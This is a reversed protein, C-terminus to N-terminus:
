RQASRTSTNAERSAELVKCQLQSLLRLVVRWRGSAALLHLPPTWRDPRCVGAGSIRGAHPVRLPSQLILGAIGERALLRVTRYEILWAKPCRCLGALAWEVEAPLGCRTAGGSGVHAPCDLFMAHGQM